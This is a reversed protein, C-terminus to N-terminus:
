LNKIFKELFVIRHNTMENLLTVSGKFYVNKHYVVLYLVNPIICCLVARVLLTTIDNLSFFLCIFYTIVCSLFVICVYSLIHKVYLILNRKSFLVSFLNHLLWPMGVLLMSVVTSLIVGYIGLVKVTLLNLGLNVIATVLPRLRDEHWMGSADKYLNLLQNIEYVFFYICFLIVVSFDLMLKEGSCNEWIKMFPQFLCLFCVTCFGAIWSIIFTFLEFDKYNKEETEVIISNGIGATCATFIITVFGIVATIIYFYNQYLALATLGLFKSIVITDVSNVIVFGIKSTFLDKIRQNIEEIKKTELKGKAIYEPYMKQACYATVINNIIQTIVMVILYLYYDHFLMLVVFQFAYTLTNTIISIKSSIDVRQHAFLISQKYSFLWYSLVTAGLNLLYIIYINIDDPVDSKILKPIFPMIGIGITLIVGGIIRYYKKYLNMLACITNTDNKAISEYMSFVMASGIGLEALNLVQIVSVFLSNLGLYEVGLSYIMVTRMLFPMIIQYIKLVMGFIMNRKANKKREIVM